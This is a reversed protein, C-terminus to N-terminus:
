GEIFTQKTETHIGGYRTASAVSRGASVAEPRERDLITGSLDIPKPEIPNGLTANDEM